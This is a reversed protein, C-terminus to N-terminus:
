ESRRSMKITKLVMKPRTIGAMKALQLDRSIPRLNTKTLVEQALLPSPTRLLMQQILIPKTPRAKITLLPRKPPLRKPVQTKPRLRRPQPNRLLPNKPLLRTLVMRKLLPKRPVQKTPLPRRPQPNIQLRM